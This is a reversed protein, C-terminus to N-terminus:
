DKGVGRRRPGGGSLSLGNANVFVVEYFEGPAVDGFRRAGCDCFAYRSLPQRRGRDRRRWVHVEARCLATERV